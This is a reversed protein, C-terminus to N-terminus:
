RPRRMGRGARLGTLMEYLIAGIAYVSATAPGLEGPEAEPPLCAMDSPLAPAQAALETSLSLGGRPNLVLNSPHVYVGYGQRHIEALEVCLPVLLEVAENLPLRVGQARKQELM